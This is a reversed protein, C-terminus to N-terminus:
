RQPHIELAPGIWQLRVEGGHLPGTQHDFGDALGPDIVLHVDLVWAFLAPPANGGKQHPARDLGSLVTKSGFVGKPVHFQATKAGFGPLVGWARNRVKQLWDPPMQALSHPWLGFEDCCGWLFCELIDMARSISSMARSRILCWCSWGGTRSRLRSTSRRRVMASRTASSKARSTPLQIKTRTWTPIMTMQTPSFASFRMWGHSLYGKRKRLKM